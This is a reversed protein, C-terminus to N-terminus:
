CEQHDLLWVIVANYPIQWLDPWIEPCAAVMGRRTQILRKDTEKRIDIKVGNSM